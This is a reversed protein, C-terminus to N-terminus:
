STGVALGMHYRRREVVVVVEAREVHASVVDHRRLLVPVDAGIGPGRDDNVIERRGFRPLGAHELNSATGFRDGGAAIRQTRPESVGENAQIGLLDVAEADLSRRAHAIGWLDGGPSTERIRAQSGISPLRPRKM